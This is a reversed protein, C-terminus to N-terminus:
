RRRVREILLYTFSSEIMVLMRFMRHDLCHRAGFAVWMLSMVLLRLNARVAPNQLTLKDREFDQQLVNLVTGCQLMKLRLQEGASGLPPADLLAREVRICFQEAHLLLETLTLM